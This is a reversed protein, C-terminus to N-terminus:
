RKRKQAPSWGCYAEGTENTALDLRLNAEANEIRWAAEDATFTRPREVDCFLLGGPAKPDACSGAGLAIWCTAMLCLKLKMMGSM